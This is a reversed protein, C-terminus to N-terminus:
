LGNSLDMTRLISTSFGPYDILLFQLHLPLSTTACLANLLSSLSAELSCSGDQPKSALYRALRNSEAAGEGFEEGKGIKRLM